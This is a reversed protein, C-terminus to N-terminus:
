VFGKIVEAALQSVIANGYARLQGVRCPLGHALPFVGPEIPRSKGDACRIFDFKSWNFGNSSRGTEQEPEVQIREQGFRQSEPLLTDGLKCAPLSSARSSQGSKFINPGNGIPVITSEGVVGAVTSFNNNLNSDAVFWIRSRVHPSGISAAPLGVAAFTYGCGELDDQVLDLWGHKIAAEVQEGFIKPPKCQTILHYWAPWLHREDTFGAGKGAQSYPQCPCSGTWVERNDPWGALRLALSWGGIGAFFHCQKFGILDSRTVDEISREDVVGKAIHGAEILNRLWQAANKDIENYYVTM